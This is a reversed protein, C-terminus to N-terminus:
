KNERVGVMPNQIALVAAEKVPFQQAPQPLVEPTSAVRREREPSPKLIQSQEPIQSQETIQSKRAANFEKLARLYSREISQIHRHARNLKDFLDADLFPNTNECLGVIQLEWVKLKRLRWSADAMTQVLFNEHCDAPQFKKAFEQINKEYETSEKVPQPAATM